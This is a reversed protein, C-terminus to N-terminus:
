NFPYHSFSLWPNVGCRYITCPFWLGAGGSAPSNIKEGRGAGIGECRIPAPHINERGAAPLHPKNM